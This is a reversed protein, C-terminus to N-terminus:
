ISKVIIDASQRKEDDSNWYEWKTTETPCLTGPLGLIKWEEFDDDNVIWQAFTGMFLLNGDNSKYVPHGNWMKPTLKYTGLYRGQYKVVDGLGFIKVGSPCPTLAGETIMSWCIQAMIMLGGDGARGISIDQSIFNMIWSQTQNFMTARKRIM